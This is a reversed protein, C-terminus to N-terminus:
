PEHNEIRNILLNLLVSIPRQQILTHIGRNFNKSRGRFGHCEIHPRLLIGVRVRAEGIRPSKSINEQWLQPTLPAFDYRCEAVGLIFLPTFTISIEQCNPSRRQCFSGTRIWIITQSVMINHYFKGYYLTLVHVFAM